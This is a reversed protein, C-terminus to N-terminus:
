AKLGQGSAHGAVDFEHDHVLVRLVFVAFGGPRKGFAVGALSAGAGAVDGHGFHAAGGLGALPNKVLRPTIPDHHEVGVHDQRGAHQRGDHIPAFAVVLVIVEVLAWQKVVTEVRLRDRGVEVVHPTAAHPAAPLRVVGCELAALGERDVGLPEPHEKAAAFRPGSEVAPPTSEAAFLSADVLHKAVPAVPRQAMGVPQPDM